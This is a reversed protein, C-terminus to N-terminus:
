SFLFLMAEFMEMGFKVYLIFIIDVKLWEKCEM